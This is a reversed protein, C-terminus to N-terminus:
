RAISPYNLAAGRIGGHIEVLNRYGMNASILRSLETGFFAINTPACLVLGSWDDVLTTLGRGDWQLVADPRWCSVLLRGDRALALGDPVTRPMDVVLQRPGLSGDPRIPLRSVGPLSTEAVYLWEGDPDIALGNPFSHSEGSALRAEGDPDIVVLVGDRDAWAGSDSVYLRGSADFVPFNPVRFPRDSVGESWTAVLGTAADLRRVSHQEQDCWYIRGQADLAIGLVLGGTEAILQVDGSDPDIRYLQGAEGGAVLTGSGPDWAVGEPHDLGTALIDILPM